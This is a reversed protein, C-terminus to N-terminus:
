LKFERDYKMKKQLGGPCVIHKKKPGVGIPFLPSIFGCERTLIIPFVIDFSTFIGVFTSPFFTVIWDYSFGKVNTKVL